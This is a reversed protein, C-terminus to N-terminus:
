LILPISTCAYLPVVSNILLLRVTIQALADCGSESVNCILYRSYSFSSRFKELLMFLHSQPSVATSIVFVCVTVTDCDGSLRVITECTKSRTAVVGHRSNHAYLTRALTTSVTFNCLATTATAEHLASLIEILESTHV